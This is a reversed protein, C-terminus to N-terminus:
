LLVDRVLALRKEVKISKAEKDDIDDYAKEIIFQFRGSKMGSFYQSFSSKTRLHPVSKPPRKLMEILEVDTLQNAPGLPITSVEEDSSLRSPSIANEKPVLVKNVMEEKPVPLPTKKKKEKKETIASSPTTESLKTAALLLVEDVDDEIRPTTTDNERGLCMSFIRDRSLIREASKGSASRSSGASGTRSSPNTLGFSDRDSSGPRKKQNPDSGPGILSLESGSEEEDEDSDMEGVWQDIAALSGKLDFGLATGAISAVTRTPAQSVNTMPAWRGSLSMLEERAARTVAIGEIDGDDSGRRVIDRHIYSKTGFRSPAAIKNQENILDDGDDDFTDTRDDDDIRRTGKKNTAKAKNGEHFVTAAKDKVVAVEVKFPASPTANELRHNLGATCASQPRSCNRQRPSPHPQDELTDAAGGVWSGRMSSPVASKPRSGRANISALFGDVGEGLDRSELDFSMSASQGDRSNFRATGAGGRVGRGSTPSLSQEIRPGTVVGEGLSLMALSVAQSAPHMSGLVSATVDGEGMFPSSVGGISGKDDRVLALDLMDLTSPISEPAANDSAKNSGRRKRMAAAVNGALVVTSGHTLESGTDPLAGRYASSSSTSDSKTSIACATNAKVTSVLDDVLRQEDEAEEDAMHMAFAAELVMGNSVKKQAATDVPSGDLKELSPILSAIILRYNPAREVPNRGLFLAKLCPCSNLADTISIDSLNNGSLNLVRLNEHMALPAVDTIFNDCCSFDELGTLVGIGDLDNLSCSNLSLSILCRLGIGLDRISSIISEDLVLSNISPLLETIDLLSQVNLDVKLQVYTVERLDTKGCVQMLYEEGIVSDLISQLGEDLDLENGNNEATSAIVGSIGMKDGKPLTKIVSAANQAKVAARHAHMNIVVVGFCM